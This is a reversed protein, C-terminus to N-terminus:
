IFFDPVDVGSCLCELAIRVRQIWKRHGNAATESHKPHQARSIAHERTFDLWAPSPPPHAHFGRTHFHMTGALSEPPADFRPHPRGSEPQPCRALNTIQRPECQPRKESLVLRTMRRMSQKRATGAHAVVADTFHRKLVLAVRQARQKRSAGLWAPLAVLERDINALAGLAPVRDFHCLAGGRVAHVLRFGGGFCGKPRGHPVLM